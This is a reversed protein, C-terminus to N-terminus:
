INKFGDEFIADFNYKDKMYERIADPPEKGEGSKIITGYDHLNYNGESEVVKFELYRPPLMAVYAWFPKDDSTEGKVLVYVFDDKKAKIM